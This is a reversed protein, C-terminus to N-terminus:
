KTFYDKQQTASKSEHLIVASSNRQARQNLGATRQIQCRKEVRHGQGTYLGPTKDWFAEPTQGPAPTETLLWGESIM